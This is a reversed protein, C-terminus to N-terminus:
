SSRYGAAWGCAFGYKDKRDMETLLGDSFVFYTLHALPKPSATSIVVGALLYWWSM